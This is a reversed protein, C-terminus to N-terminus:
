VGCATRFQARAAATGEMPAAFVDSGDTATFIIRSGRAFQEMVPGTAPLQGVFTDEYGVYHGDIPHRANRGDPLAIWMMMSDDQDDLNRMGAHPGGTLTFHLTPGLRSNCGIRLVKGAASTQAFAMTGDNSMGSEWGQASAPAALAALALAALAFRIPSHFPTTM